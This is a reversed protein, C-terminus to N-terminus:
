TIRPEEVYLTAHVEVGIRPDENQGQLNLQEKEMCISSTGPAQMIIKAEWAYAHVEVGIRPDQSTPPQAHVAEAHTMRPQKSIWSEKWAYAHTK